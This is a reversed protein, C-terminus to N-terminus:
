RGSTSFSTDIFIAVLLYPKVVEKGNPDEVVADEPKLVQIGM